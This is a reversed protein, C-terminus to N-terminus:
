GCAAFFREIGATSGAHAAYPHRNEGEWVAIWGTRRFRQFVPESAAAEATLYVGDHLMSPESEAAFRETDGGSELHIVPQAGDPAPVTLDVRGSGERCDLSLRVDDSNAVGYALSLGGDGQNFFWDYGAAPAPASAAVPTPTSPEPATACAAILASAGVASLISRARM